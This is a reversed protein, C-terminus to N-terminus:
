RREWIIVFSSSTAGSMSGTRGSLSRPPPIRGSTGQCWVNLLDAVTKTADSCVSWAFEVMEVEDAHWSCLSYVPMDRYVTTGNVIITTSANDSGIVSRVQPIDCVNIPGRKRLDDELVRDMRMGFKLRKGLDDLAGIDARSSIRTSPLLNVALERGENRGLLVSIRRESFQPYTIRVMYSGNRLGPFAFRGATDSRVERGDPGLLQVRAGAAPRQGVLAITGHIGPRDGEVIVTPLIAAAWLLRYS